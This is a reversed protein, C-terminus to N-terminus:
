SQHNSTELKPTSLLNKVSGSSVANQLRSISEIDARTFKGSDILDLIAMQHRNQFYGSALSHSVITEINM